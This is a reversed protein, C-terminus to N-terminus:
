ALSEKFPDEAHTAQSVEGSCVRELDVSGVRAIALVLM